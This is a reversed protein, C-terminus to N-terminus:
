QISLGGFKEFKYIYFDRQFLVQHGVYDINEAADLSDFFNLIVDGDYYYQRLKEGEDSYYLKKTEEDKILLSQEIILYLPSDLDIGVLIDKDSYNNYNAVYFSGTDGLYPAFLLAAWDASLVMISNADKEFDDFTFGEKPFDFYYLNDTYIHSTISLIVSLSLIISIVVKYKNRIVFSVSYYLAILLVLVLLPYILFLYRNSYAGMSYISTRLSAIIVIFIISIIHPLLSFQFYKLKSITNKTDKKIFEIFKHFWEEKRILVIVPILLITVFVLIGLFWEFYPNPLPDTHIGFLDRTLFYWYFKYQMGFPYSARAYSLTEGNGVMNATTSPFALFSLIVAFLCSCGHALFVKFNKSFLFYLTYCITIAFAYVLFEHLTFAGLFCSVFLLIFNLPKIKERRNEYIIHSYYAFMVAFFVGLAYIRLFFVINLAGVGFGFLLITAIAVLKRKTMKFAILFLYIQTGIFSLINISFGFWKSFIGPFFSCVTHLIFQQFPPNLDKSANYYVKNYAFRQGSNVTIYDIFRSSNLWQNSLSEGSNTIMLEKSDFSNSIGYNWLEDSHFGKKCLGFTVGLYISQIIIIAILIIITKKKLTKSM